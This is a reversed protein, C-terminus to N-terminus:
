DWRRFDRGTAAMETTMGRMRPRRRTTTAPTAEEEFAGEASAANTEPAETAETPTLTLRLRQDVDPVFRETVTEHGELHLALTVAREGRPLWVTTPTAGRDIGDVSVAAGTPTSAISVAVSSPAADAGTENEHREGRQNMLFFLFGAALIAVLAFTVGALAWRQTSRSGETRMMVGSAVLGQGPVSEANPLEIEIDAMTPPVIGVEEGREVRRHMAGKEEIRDAFLRKTLDLLREEPSGEEYAGALAKKLDNRMQGATPYRRRRSRSLAKLCIREIEKPVDPTFESPPVIEHELVARITAAQTPRQFLRRATLMEYLVIGLCFIDSRRDLPEGRCQEPSMYAFKGKILGADTKTMRDAATAIGFDLIKVHGDYTVFVNSPSVDRHVVNRPQGDPDKLEHAAHLGAATEALVHACVTPDVRIGRSAARRLIGIIPEGELYEMVLFLDDGEQGLEHVHVVNPHRVSAAIRAEDLFM